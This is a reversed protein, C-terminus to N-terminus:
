FPITTGLQISRQGLELRLWSATPFRAGLILDHDLYASKHKKQDEQLKVGQYRENYNLSIEPKLYIAFNNLSTEILAAFALSTTTSEDIIDSNYEQEVEYNSFSLIGELYLTGVATGNQELSTIRNGLALSFIALRDGYSSTSVFGVGPAIYVDEAFPQPGSQAALYSGGIPIIILCLFFSISIKSKITRSM